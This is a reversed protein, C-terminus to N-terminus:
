PGVPAEPAESPPPDNGPPAPDDPRGRRHLRVKRQEILVRWDIRVLLVLVASVIVLAIIVSWPGVVGRLQDALEAAAVSSATVSISYGITRGVFVSAAVIWLKIRLLGAAVFLVGAPPPSAAMLVAAGMTGRTDELKSALYDLNRRSWRGLIAPGTVRAIAALGTRGLAAGAAGALIIPVLDLEYEVKIYALLVWSPFLPLPVLHAGAVVAAVM